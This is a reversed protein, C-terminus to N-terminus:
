PHLSLLYPGRRNVFGRARTPPRTYTDVSRLQPTPSGLDGCRVMAQMCADM